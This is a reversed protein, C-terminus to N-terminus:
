RYIGMKDYVKTPRGSKWDAVLKETEGWPLPLKDGAKAAIEDAHRSCTWEECPVSFTQRMREYATEFPVEALNGFSINVFECPQVDGNAGVYFRDIGGCCCGLM